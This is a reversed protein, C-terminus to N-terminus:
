AEFRGRVLLLAECWSVEQSAQEFALVNVVHMHRLLASAAAGSAHEHLQLLEALMAPLAAGRPTDVLHLRLLPTLGQEQMKRYAASLPLRGRVLLPQGGGGGSAPQLAWCCLARLQMRFAEPVACAAALADALQQWTATGPPLLHQVRAGLGAVLHLLTLPTALDLGSRDKLPM